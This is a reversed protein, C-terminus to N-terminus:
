VREYMDRKWGIPLSQQNQAAWQARVINQSFLVETQVKVFIDPAAAIFNEDWTERSESHCIEFIVIWTIWKVINRWWLIFIRFHM